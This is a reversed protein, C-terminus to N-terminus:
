TCILTMYMELLKLHWNVKLQCKVKVLIKVVWDYLLIFSAKTFSRKTSKRTRIQM